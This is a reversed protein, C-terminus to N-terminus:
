KKAPPKKGAAPKKADQAFAASAVASVFLASLLLTKTMAPYESTGCAADVIQGAARAWVAM